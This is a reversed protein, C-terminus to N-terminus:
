PSVATLMLGIGRGEPDTGTLTLEDAEIRYGVDGHLTARVRLALDAAAPDACPGAVAPGPGFSITPGSVAAPGSLPQCGDSGTVRGQGFVLFVRSPEAPYGMVNGGILASVVWRTGELPRDPDLVRRDTLEIVAQGAIVRLHPGSLQWSPRADLLSALWQDQALLDEGCWMETIGIESMRIQGGSLEVRGHITNCGAGVVLRGDATFRLMVRTGAPMPRPVGSETVTTSLFTRDALRSPAAGAPREARSQDAMFERGTGDDHRVTAPDRGPGPLQRDGM